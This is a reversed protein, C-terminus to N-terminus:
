FYARARFISKYKRCTIFIAPFLDVPIDKSWGRLREQKRGEDSGTVLDTEHDKNDNAKCDNTIEVCLLNKWIEQWIVSWKEKSYIIDERRRRPVWKLKSWNFGGGLFTFFLRVASKFFISRKPRLLHCFFRVSAPQWFNTWYMPINYGPRNIKISDTLLNKTAWTTGSITQFVSTPTTISQIFSIKSVVSRWCKNNKKRPAGSRNNEFAALLHRQSRKIEYFEVHGTFM